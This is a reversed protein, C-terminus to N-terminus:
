KLLQRQGPPKTWLVCFGSKAERGDVKLTIGLEKADRECLREGWGVDSLLTQNWQMLQRAYRGEDSRAWRMFEPNNRGFRGAEGLGWDLSKAEELTLKRPEGSAIANASDLKTIALGIFMGIGIAGLLISGAQILAFIDHSVKEYAAGKVLHNVSDAISKSQVDLAARSQIELTKEARDIFHRLKSSQQEFMADAYQLEEQWQERWKTFTRDIEAPKKDLLLELQGTALLVAFLPDDGEVGAHYAVQLIRERQESTKGELVMALLSRDNRRVRESLTTSFQSLSRVFDDKQKKEKAVSEVLNESDEETHNESDKEDELTEISEEDKSEDDFEQSSEHQLSDLSVEEEDEVDEEELKEICESLDTDQFNATESM